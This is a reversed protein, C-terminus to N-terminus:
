YKRDPGYTLRPTSKPFPEFDQPSVWGGGPGLKLYKRVKLFFSLNEFYSGRGRPFSYTLFKNLTLCVYVCGCGICVSVYEFATDIYTKCPKITKYELQTNQRYECALPLKSFFTM